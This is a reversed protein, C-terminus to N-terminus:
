AGNEQVMYTTKSGEIAVVFNTAGSYLHPPMISFPGFNLMALTMGLSKLAPFAPTSANRVSGPTWSYITSTNFDYHNPFVANRDLPTDITKMRAVLEPDRPVDVERCTLPPLCFTSMFAIVARIPLSM